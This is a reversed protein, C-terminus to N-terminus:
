DHGLSWSPAPATSSLNAERLHDRTGLVSQSTPVAEPVGQQSDRGPAVGRQRGVWASVTETQQTQSDRYRGQERWAATDAAWAPRSRCCSSSSLFAASSSRLSRSSCFVTALKCPLPPQQPRPSGQRAYILIRFGTHLAEWREGQAAESNQPARRTM